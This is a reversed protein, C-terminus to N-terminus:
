EGGNEAKKLDIKEQRKVEEWIKLAAEPSDAKKDGFVYPHRRIMKESIGQIVDDLTFLKEEEAIQAHFVVQLLVDGLEECLNNGDGTRALIDIGEIVENAEEIMCPKLSEHTQVKDWPCGNESRLIRMIEIFDEFSYRM